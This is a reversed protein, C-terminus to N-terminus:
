GVWRLVRSGLWAGLFLSPLFLWASLSLSAFASIGGGISCGRALLVGWAMAVGGLASLLLQRTQRPWRFRFSKSWLAALLAGLIMGGDILLYPHSRGLTVSGLAGKAASSIMGLPYSVTWPQFVATQATNVIGLLLGGLVITGPRLSLRWGGTRGAALSWALALALLTIVLAGNGGFWRAITEGQYPTRLWVPLLHPLPNISAGVVMGALAIVGLVYGEGLRILSGMVCMGTLSMGLGFIIGGIVTGPGFPLLLNHTAAAPYVRPILAFGLVSVAVAAIVGNLAERSKLMCLELGARAVCFGSRQIIVGYALGFVFWLVLLEIGTV